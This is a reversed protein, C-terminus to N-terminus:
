RRTPNSVGRVLIVLGILGIAIAVIAVTHCRATTYCVPARGHYLEAVVILGFLAALVCASGFVIGRFTGREQNGM